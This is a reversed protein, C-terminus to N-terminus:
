LNNLFELKSEIAKIYMMNIEESAKVSGELDLRQVEM